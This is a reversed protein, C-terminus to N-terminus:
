KLKLKKKIKEKSDILAEKSYKLGVYYNNYVQQYMFIVYHKYEISTLFYNQLEKSSNDKMITKGMWESYWPYDRFKTTIELTFDSIREELPLILYNEMADYIDIIQTSLSDKNATERLQNVGTKNLVTTRYRTLIRSLGQDLLESTISDHRVKNFVPKIEDLYALTNSIEQIDNDIDSLIREYILNLKKEELRDTNWNNIQLAILIGIVVLIIEGIAYKLYNATKNKEMLDFRLKRLFKIM